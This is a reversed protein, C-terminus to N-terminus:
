SIVKWRRVELVIAWLLALLCQWALMNELSDSQSESIWIHAIHFMSNMQSYICRSSIYALIYFTTLVDGM